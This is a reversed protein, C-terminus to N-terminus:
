LVFFSLFIGIFYKLSYTKEIGLRNLQRIVVLQSIEKVEEANLCASTVLIVKYLGLVVLYWGSGGEVSVM